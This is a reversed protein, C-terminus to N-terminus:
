KNGGKDLLGILKKCCPILLGGVINGATIVLIRLMLDGTLGFFSFYFMDAVCHEFGCIVFVTVGFFLSLYKGIEHPCNKYGDVAIFILINCFIGLIFLSLFGDGAKKAVVNQVAATLSELRTIKLISGILFAGLFNGIWIVLLKILYSPKNELSYCVKGTFLNFNFVLVLFLGVCFFIAGWVPSSSSLFAIGGISISIGALVALIFDKLIGKITM